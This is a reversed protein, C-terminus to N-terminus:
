KTVHELKRLVDFTQDTPLVEICANGIWVCVHEAIHEQMASISSIAVLLLCEGQKPRLEMSFFTIRRTM